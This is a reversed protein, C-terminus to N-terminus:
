TCYEIYFSTGVQVWLNEALVGRDLTTWCQSPAATLPTRSCCFGSNFRVSQSAPLCIGYEDM